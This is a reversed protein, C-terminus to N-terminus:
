NFKEKKKQILKYNLLFFYTILMNQITLQPIYIKEYLFESCFVNYQEFYSLVYNKKSIDQSQM